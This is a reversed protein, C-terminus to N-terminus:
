KTTGASQEVVRTWTKSEAIVTELMGEGSKWQTYDGLQEVKSKFTPDAVTNEVAKELIQKIDEPLGAPAVLGTWVM